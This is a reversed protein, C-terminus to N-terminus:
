DAKKEWSFKLSFDVINIVFLGMSIYLALFFMSVSKDLFVNKELFYKSVLM